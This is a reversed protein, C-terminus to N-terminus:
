WEMETDPLLEAHTVELHVRGMKNCTIVCKRM